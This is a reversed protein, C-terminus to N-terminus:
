TSKRVTSGAKKSIKRSGKRRPSARVRQGVGAGDDQRFALRDPLEAREVRDAARDGRPRRRDGSKTTLPTTRSMGRLLWM